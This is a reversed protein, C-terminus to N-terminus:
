TSGAPAKQSNPIRCCYRNVNAITLNQCQCLWHGSVECVNAQVPGMVFLFSKFFFIFAYSGLPLGGNSLVQVSFLWRPCLDGGKTLATSVLHAMFLWEAFLRM